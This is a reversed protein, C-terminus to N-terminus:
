VPVPEEAPRASNMLCVTSKATESIGNWDAGSSPDWGSTDGTVNAYMGITAPPVEKIYLRFIAPFLTVFRRSLPSTIVLINVPFIVLQFSAAIAASLGPRAIGSLDITTTARESPEPLEAWNM